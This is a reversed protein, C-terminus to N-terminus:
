PSIPDVALDIPRRPDDGADIGLLADFHAGLGDRAGLV